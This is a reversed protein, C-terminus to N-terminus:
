ECYLAEFLTPAVEYYKPAHKRLFSALDSTAIVGILKNNKVDEVAIHRVRNEVMLKAADEISSNKDITMLPKSMISSAVVAQASVNKGCVERLLDRETIIGVIKNTEDTLLISSIKRELMKKAVELANSQSSMSVINKSM